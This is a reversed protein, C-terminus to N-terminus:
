CNYRFNKSLYYGLGQHFGLCNHYKDLEHRKIMEGYKKFYFLEEDKGRSGGACVFGLNNDPFCFECERCTCCNMCFVGGLKTISFGNTKRNGM